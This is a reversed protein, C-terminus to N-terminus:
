LVRCRPKLGGAPPPGEIAFVERVSARAAEVAADVDETRARRAATRPECEEPKFVGALLPQSTSVLHASPWKCNFCGGSWLTALATLM